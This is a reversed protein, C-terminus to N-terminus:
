NIKKVVSPKINTLAAIGNDLFLTGDPLTEKVEYISKDYPHRKLQVNDGVEIKINQNTAEIKEKNMNKIENINFVGIYYKSSAFVDFNTNIDGIMSLQSLHSLILKMIEHDDMRVMIDIVWINYSKDYCFHFQNIDLKKDIYQNIQHHLIDGPWIYITNDSYIYGRIVGHDSNELTDNIEKQTPNVFVEFYKNRKKSSDYIESKILRTFKKM